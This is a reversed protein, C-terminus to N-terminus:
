PEVFAINMVPFTLKVTTGEGWKSQVELRANHVEAINQIISM